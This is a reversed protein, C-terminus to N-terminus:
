AAFVILASFLDLVVPSQDQEQIELLEMSM